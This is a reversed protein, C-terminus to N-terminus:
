ESEKHQHFKLYKIASQLISTDEKGKGIATNCDSCLLGRIKLCSHCHDVCLPLIDGNRGKMREERKCILCIHNQEHSIKNYIERSIGRKRLLDKDKKCQICQFKQYKGNKEFRFQDDKLKGHINCIKIIESM